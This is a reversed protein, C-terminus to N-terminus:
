TELYDLAEKVPCACNHEMNRLPWLPDTDTGGRLLDITTGCGQCRWDGKGDRTEEQAMSILLTRVHAKCDSM